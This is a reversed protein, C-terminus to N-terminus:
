TRVMVRSPPFSGGEGSEVQPVVGGGKWQIYWNKKANIERKPIEKLKSVCLSHSSLKPSTGLIQDHKRQHNQTEHMANYVCIQMSFGFFIVLFIQFVCFSAHLQM